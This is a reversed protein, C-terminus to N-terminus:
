HGCRLGAFAMMNTDNKEAALHLPTAYFGILGNNYSIEDPHERLRSKLAAVDGQMIAKYLPHFRCLKPIVFWWCILLIPLFLGIWVTRRKM